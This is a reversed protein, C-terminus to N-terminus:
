NESVLLLYEEDTLTELKYLTSLVAEMLDDDDVDIHPLANEIDAIVTDRTAKDTHYM